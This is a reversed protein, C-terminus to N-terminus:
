QNTQASKKPRNKPDSCFTLANSNLIGVYDTSLQPSREFNRAVDNSVCECYEINDRELERYTRSFELCNKYTEGAIAVTNGCKPPNRSKTLSDFIEYQPVMPGLKERQILFAGALCACDFYVKQYPNESCLRYMYSAEAEMEDPTMIGDDLTYYVSDKVTLDDIQAMAHAPLLLLSFLILALNRMM